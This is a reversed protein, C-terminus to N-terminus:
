QLPSCRTPRLVMAKQSVLRPAVPANAAQYSPNGPVLKVGNARQEMDTYQWLLFARNLQGFTSQFVGLLNGGFPTLIDEVIHLVNSFPDQWGSDPKFDYVRLTYLGTSLDTREMAWTPLTSLITSEESIVMQSLHHSIRHQTKPYGMRGPGDVKDRGSFTDFQWLAYVENLNSGSEVIWSGILFLGTPLRTCDNISSLFERFAEPRIVYKRLEYSRSESEPGSFYPGPVRTEECNVNYPLDCAGVGHNWVQGEGCSLRIGTEGQQGCRYYNKCSLPDKYIGSSPCLFVTTTPIALSLSLVLGAIIKLSM